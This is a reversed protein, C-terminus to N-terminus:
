SQPIKLFDALTKESLSLVLPDFFAIAASVKAALARAKADLGQYFNNNTDQDSKMSAYVYLKELDRMLGLGYKLAMLLGNGSTAANNAILEAGALRDDLDDFATEWASDDAFITTLDWTMSETLDARTPLNKAM